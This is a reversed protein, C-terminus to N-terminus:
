SQCLEAHSPYVVIIQEKSISPLFMENGLFAAHVKIMNSKANWVKAITTIWFRGDKDTTGQAIINDAPCSGDNKILIQANAVREGSESLLNGVFVIPQGGNFRHSRFDHLKLNTKEEEFAYLITTNFILFSIAILGFILTFSLLRM